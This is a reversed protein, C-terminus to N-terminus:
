SVAKWCIITPITVTETPVSAAYICVGGAYCAAVPAFNGDLVDAVSFIVEPTMSTLVGTLAVSARWPYGEKVYTSDAIFATKSVAVNHFELRKMEFAVGAQLDNLQAEIATLFAEFQAQMTTTDATLSETVLGCFSKDLREDTIMGATIATTGAPIRIKALSIQRLVNNNTLAPPMPNSAPAGKLIKVEPLAVYNTTQWSVIVRDIRPRIADAMEAILRLKSGSSKENDVWWVIGDGESNAMWGNGDSVTVSMSDLVPAVSCCGQAAFVGSTRGHLWKMVEEAGIFEDQNNPFSKINAM